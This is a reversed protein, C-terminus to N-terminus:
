EDLEGLAEARIRNLMREDQEILYQLDVGNATLDEPRSQIRNRVYVPSPLSGTGFFDDDPDRVDARTAYLFEQAHLIMQEIYHNSPAVHIQKGDWFEVVTGVTWPILHRISDVNVVLERVERDYFNLETLEIHM